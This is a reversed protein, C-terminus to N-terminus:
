GHGLYLYTACRDEHSVQDTVGQLDAQSCKGTSSKCVILTITHHRPGFSYIAHSWPVYATQLKYNCTFHWQGTFHVCDPSFGSMTLVLNLPEFKFAIDWCENLSPLVVLCHHWLEWSYLPANFHQSYIVNVLKEQEKDAKPNFSAVSVVKVWQPGTIGYPLMFRLWCQNLYHSTAHHCRVM